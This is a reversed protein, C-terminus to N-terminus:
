VFDNPFAPAYMSYAMLLVVIVIATLAVAPLLQKPRRDQSFWSEVGMAGLLPLAFAAFGSAHVEWASSLLPLDYLRALVPVNFALLISLFAPPALAIAQRRLLSPCGRVLLAAIGFLVPIGVYVIHVFNSNREGWYNGDATFGFFKPAFIALAGHNPVFHDESAGAARYSLTHSNTLYELFPVIQAANLALALAWAMSALVCVRAVNRRLQALRIFFYCAVGSSAVLSTEPHGALLILTASLSMLFFGRRHLGTALFEASLLLLPLWAVVDVCPWYCWVQVYGGLMWGLAAFQAPFLSLGLCRACIFAFMGCLWLKVILYITMAVPIDIWANLIHLPYLVASQYNALLPVGLFPYPNWLPWEGYKLAEQTAFFWASFQTVSELTTENRVPEYDAPVHASWPPIEFLLDAAIAVEGHLVAGPLLVVLVASVVFAHWALERLNIEGHKVM